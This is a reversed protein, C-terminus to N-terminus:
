HNGDDDGRHKKEYDAGLKQYHWYILILVFLIVAPIGRSINADLLSVPLWLLVCGTALIRVTMIKRYYPNGM